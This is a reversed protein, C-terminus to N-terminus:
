IECEIIEKYKPTPKSFKCYYPIRETRYKDLKTKELNRDGTFYKRSQAKYHIIPSSLACAVRWHKKYLNIFLYDDGGFTDLEDPILSYAEKRM